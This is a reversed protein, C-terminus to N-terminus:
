QILVKIAGSYEEIVNYNNSKLWKLINPKLVPKKGPSHKGRGTIILLLIIVNNKNERVFEELEKLKQQLFAKSEKLKKGHLDIKQKYQIKGSFEFVNNKGYIRKKREDEDKEFNDLLSLLARDLDFNSLILKEEIEEDSCFPVIKKLNDFTSNKEINRKNYKKKNEDLLFFCNDDDDEDTSNDEFNQKSEEKQEKTDYINLSNINEVLLDITKSIDKNNIYFFDEIIDPSFRKYLFKLEDLIIKDENLTNM